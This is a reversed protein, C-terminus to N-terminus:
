KGGHNKSLSKTVDHENAHHCTLCGQVQVIHETTICHLFSFFLCLYYLHLNWFHVFLDHRSM